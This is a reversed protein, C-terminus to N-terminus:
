KGGRLARWACFGAVAVCLLAGGMYPVWSWDGSLHAGVGYATADALRRAVAPPLNFLTVPSAARSLPAYAVWGGALTHSSGGGFETQLARVFGLGLLVTGIALLFAGAIGRGMTKAQRVVPELAEQKAYAVSLQFFDSAGQRAGGGIKPRGPM